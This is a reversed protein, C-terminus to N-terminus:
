KGKRSLVWKELVEIEIVMEKNIGTSVDFSNRKAFELFATSADQYNEIVNEDGVSFLVENTEPDHSYFVKTDIWEDLTKPEGMNTLENIHKERIHLWRKDM